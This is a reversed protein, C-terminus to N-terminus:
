RRRGGFHRLPIVVTARMGFGPGYYWPYGTYFPAFGRYPGYGYLPDYFLMPNGPRRMVGKAVTYPEADYDYHGDGMRDVLKLMASEPDPSSDVPALADLNWHQGTMFQGFNFPTDSRAAFVLGAGANESVTFADRDGRGRIEITKGGRVKSDTGPDVPFLVRVHGETDVRLVLLYGDKATKVNVRAHDGSLYVDDSLRVRVPPDSAAVALAAMPALLAASLTTPTVYGGKSLEAFQVQRV